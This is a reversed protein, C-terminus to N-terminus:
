KVVVFKGTQMAGGDLDKVAFLYLGTAIAQDDKTILDWAHEGGAFQPPTQSDSFREFWGISQGNNEAADHQLVTVVDGAPTYITITCRAPLNTFYIKRTRESGGDWTARAIYPNPYVGVPPSGSAAPKAGPVVRILRKASELPPVNNVSDGRDFAAVGYLYQWGDLHTVGSGIPPFRYWYETTDGPFTKPTALRIASFGTNYGVANGAQDFEGVLDMSQSLNESSTVDMGPRSRYIRYGEFDRTKSIPDVTEEASVRDWYIVASRHDLEARIKPQRPPSPLLYRDLQGNANVDEGLDLSDNGNIDEGDYLQQAANLSTVFRSRQLPTDFREADPGEKRACVVAFAVVLTDGPQLTSFPGTSLLTTMNLPQTRLPDIFSQPLSRTLRTYRSLYPDSNFDDTPSFYAQSGSASRFGWANYFTSQRLGPLATVGSPYPSTGLLKLGFYSDAPVGGPSPDFEFTYMTRLTSDYGNGGRDFYGTTGPRNFNTNRVVANAWMGVYVSDLIDTGSNVITYELIVYFDAFPFNWAFSRASVTLGLPIHNFISDGTAPVRTNRDTFEAVLDQHSVAREDFYRSESLSSRQEIFTGLGNTFEYGEGSSGSRDTVGTSVHFQGSARSRAGVWLGAQYLHEVRSGLPYECSPQNPWYRNRTGLTGFNTVTLGISGASTFQRDDDDSPKALRSPTEQGMGPMVLLALSLISAALLRYSPFPHIM